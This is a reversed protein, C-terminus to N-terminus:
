RIEKRTADFSNALRRAACRYEDHQLVHRVARGIADSSATRALTVGAGRAIVRAATDAQDRGHPLVVMPVGAALMKMVTGHGGHTIALAAQWLVERHPVSQVIVVNPSSRLAAPDVAPPLTPFQRPLGYAAGQSHGPKGKRARTSTM